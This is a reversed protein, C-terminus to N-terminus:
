GDTAIRLKRTLMWTMRQKMEAVFDRRDAIDANIEAREDFCYARAAHVDVGRDAAACAPVARIYVLRILGPM